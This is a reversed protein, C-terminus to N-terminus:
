TQLKYILYPKSINESLIIKKERFVVKGNKVMDNEFGKKWIQMINSINIILIYSVKIYTLSRHKEFKM